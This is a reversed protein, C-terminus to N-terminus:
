TALKMVHVLNNNGFHAFKFRVTDGPKYGGLRCFNRWGGVIKTIKEPRNTKIVTCEVVECNSGCLNLSTFGRSRVYDGFEKNFIQVIIVFLLVCNTLISDVIIM